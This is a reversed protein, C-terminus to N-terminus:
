AMFEIARKYREPTGIDIISKDTSFGYCRLSNKIIKPFLDYELSFINQNPMYGFIDKQVMYIGANILSKNELLSKEDFSIIRQYKDTKIKGYDRNVDNVNNDISSESLVISLLANKNKHFNLLDKFNIYCISDGNMVIFPNSNILNSANKLAGGTGLSKEEESYVINCYKHFKFHNNYHEKIQDKLYGICLIINKFGYSIINEIIIDIFIKNGIKVLVKPKDSIIPRLRKGLGGCLIVVDVNNLERNNLNKYTTIKQNM